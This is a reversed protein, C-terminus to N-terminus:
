CDKQTTLNQQPSIYQFYRSTDIKTCVVVKDGDNQQECPGRRRMEVTAPAPKFADNRQSTSRALPNMGRHTSAKESSDLSDYSVAMDHRSSNGNDGIDVSAAWYADSDKNLDDASDNPCGEPVLSPILLLTSLRCCAKVIILWKLNSYNESNVNFIVLLTAGFYSSVAAGFNSLATLM